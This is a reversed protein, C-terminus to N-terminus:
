EFDNSCRRRTIFCELRQEIKAFSQAFRGHGALNSPSSHDFPDSIEEKWSVGPKITLRRSTGYRRSATRIISRPSAVASPQIEVSRVRNEEDM